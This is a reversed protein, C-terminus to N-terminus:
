DPARCRSLYRLYLQSLLIVVIVMLIGYASALGTDFNQFGVKYIQFSLTETSSGPGGGTLIYVLDFLRFADIARFLVRDLAAALRAPVHHPPVQVM